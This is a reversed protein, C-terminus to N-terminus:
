GPRLGRHGGLHQPARSLRRNARVRSAPNRDTIKFPLDLDDLRTRVVEEAEDLVRLVDALGQFSSKIYEALLRVDPGLDVRRNELRVATEDRGCVNSPRSGFEPCDVSEVDGQQKAIEGQPPEDWRLDRFTLSHTM